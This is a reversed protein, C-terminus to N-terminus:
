GVSASICVEGDGDQFSSHEMSVVSIMYRVDADPSASASSIQWGICSEPTKASRLTDEYDFADYFFDSMFKFEVRQIHAQFVKVPFAISSGIPLFDM